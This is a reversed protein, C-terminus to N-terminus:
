RTRKFLRCLASVITLFVFSIVFGEALFVIAFSIGPSYSWMPDLFLIKGILAAAPLHLFLVGMLFNGMGTESVYLWALLLLACLVISGLLSLLARDPWIKQLTLKM